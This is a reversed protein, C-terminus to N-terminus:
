NEPAPVYVALVAAPRTSFPLTNLAFVSLTVVANSPPPLRITLVPAVNVVGLIPAAVPVLRLTVPLIVPPLKFAAPNLKLLLTTDASFTVGFMAPPLKSVGPKIEAVPLIVPLLTLAVLKLTLEFIIDASFADDLITAPVVILATPLMVPLLKFATPNLRDLLTILANTEAAFIVVVALM